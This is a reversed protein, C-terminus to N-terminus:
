KYKEKVLEFGEKLISLMTRDKEVSYTKLEKKFDFDVLFKLQVLELSSRKNLNKIPTERAKPPEGKSNIKIPLKKIEIAM